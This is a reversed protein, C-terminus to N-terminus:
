RLFHIFTLMCSDKFGGKPSSLQGRDVKFLKSGPWAQFIKELMEDKEKVLDTGLIIEFARRLSLPPPMWRVLRLLKMEVADIPGNQKLEPHAALFFAHDGQFRTNLCKLRSKKDQHLAEATINNTMGAAIEVMEREADTPAMLLLRYIPKGKATFRELGLELQNQDLFKGFEAASGKKCYPPMSTWIFDYTLTQGNSGIKKLQAAVEAVIKQREVEASSRCRDLFLIRGVSLYGMVDKRIFNFIPAYPSVVPEMFNNGSETKETPIV